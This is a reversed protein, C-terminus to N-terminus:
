LRRQCLSVNPVHANGPLVVASSSIRGYLLRALLPSWKDEIPDYSEVGNCQSEPNGGLAYLRGHVTVLCHGSRGNTMNAVERWQNQAPEYRECSQFITPLGDQDLIQGGCVYIREGLVSAAPGGRATSMPAVKTWLNRSPDYHEVSSLANKGDFGGFVYLNGRFAVMAFAQRKENMPWIEMSHTSTLRECSRVPETDYGAKGGCVYVSQNLLAGSASFRATKLLPGPENRRVYPDLIETSSLRKKDEGEGGAIFIRGDPMLVSLAFLPM